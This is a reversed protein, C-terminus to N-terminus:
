LGRQVFRIKAFHAKMAPKVHPARVPKAMAIAPLFVIGSMAVLFIKKLNM